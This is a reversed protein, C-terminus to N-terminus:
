YRSAKPMQEAERASFETNAPTQRKMGFKLLIPTVLTTVIVVLVIPPFMESNILGAQAGKQAVILAVEGRSVMGLGISIADYTQFGMMRAGLGCGIIKSLIAVITLVVAFLVLKDTLGNLNTKIGISAFFLPSFLMYGLVNTKSAVYDRTDSLNCMVIGAFYAGTIDAIGFLEEAGYSMLFAFVLAYIAIRRHKHWWQEMKIFAKHMVLGIVLVFIFFAFIRGFVSLPKVSPDTCATLVTLVVIGLIDDIVAAGLIATGVKSKLKGMERMTEVTISVSTATLVVGIFAAKLMNMPDTPQNGFILYCGMGGALPVLVGIVAIIFSAFGTAKLEELDTDLGANFMLIIVGIEAAKVLFDTEGVWALCSPGVLIGAVLAGVVQPMHVRESTLGFIKTFLM